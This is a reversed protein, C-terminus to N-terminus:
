ELGTAAPSPDVDAGSEKSETGVDINEFRGVGRETCSPVAPVVCCIFKVEKNVLAKQAWQFCFTRKYWLM